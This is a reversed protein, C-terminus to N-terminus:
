VRGRTTKHATPTSSTKDLILVKNGEVGRKEAVGEGMGGAKEFQPEEEGRLKGERGTEAKM